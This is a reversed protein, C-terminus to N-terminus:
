GKIEKINERSRWLEATLDDIRKKNLKEFEEMHLDSHLRKRWDREFKEQDWLDISWEIPNMGLTKLHQRCKDNEQVRLQLATLQSRNTRFIKEKLHNKREKPANEIEERILLELEMQDITWEIRNIIEYKKNNDCMEDVITLALLKNLLM